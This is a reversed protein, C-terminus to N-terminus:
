FVSSQLMSEATREGYTWTGGSVKERPDETKRIIFKAFGPDSLKFEGNVLLINDPKIDAHWRSM